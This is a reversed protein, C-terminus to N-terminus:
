QADETAQDQASPMDWAHDVHAARVGTVLGPRPEDASSGDDAVVYRRGGVRGERNDLFLVGGPRAGRGTYTARLAALTCYLAVCITLKEGGSWKALRSIEETTGTADDTPKLVRVTFGRPGAAAHVAEKLLPMGEPDLKGNKLSRAFDLPHDDPPRQSPQVDPLDSRRIYRDNVRFAPREV